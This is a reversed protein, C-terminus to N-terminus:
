DEILSRAKVDSFPKMVYQLFTRSGTEIFIEAPMGPVLEKGDLGAFSEPNLEVRALYFTAGTRQDQVADASLSLVTGYLTPTSKSNFAPLRITTVQGVALRDIDVVSVQAEIILEARQPVIEAIPSSPNIVGGVTHYQMGNVVGAVPARVESRAVIDTFVATRERADKLMTQTESLQHAVETQFDNELQLIELKTEGIQIQTTAVNAKLEAAEGTMSAHARELERLRLKDAFGEELLARVDSLEDAYSNALMNKSDSVALLGVERSELQEIRQNLVAIRGERSAKRTAFIQQEAAIVNSPSGGATAAPQEPFKITDLSDRETLLRAERATLTLLQSTFIELQSLSQTADMVLIVDGANVVDGNQARIEKVIGGELHQVVKKYSKVTVSGGAHASGDIPALVSWLGFVGFVLFAIGQGIRKANAFDVENQQVLQNSTSNGLSVDGDDAQESTVVRNGAQVSVVSKDEM